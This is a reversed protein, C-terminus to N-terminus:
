QKTPSFIQFNHPKIGEKSMQQFLSNAEDHLGNGALGDIFITWTHSHKTNIQHFISRANDIDGCKLFTQILNRGLIDDLDIGMEKIEKYISKARQINKLNRISKLISVFTVKDPQIGEKKMEEFLQFAEEYQENEILGDIMTNWTFIDKDKMQTFISKATKLYGCKCFLNILSNETVTNV